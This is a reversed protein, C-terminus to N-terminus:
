SANCPRCLGPPNILIWISMRWCTIHRPNTSDLKMVQALDQIAQDYAEREYFIESRKLYLNPDNPTAKIAETLGDISPDVTLGMDGPHEANKKCAGALVTFLVFAMLWQTISRFQTLEM